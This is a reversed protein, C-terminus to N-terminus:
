ARERSIALAACVFVAIFVIQIGIGQLVETRVAGSVADFEGLLENVKEYWYLPLFQAATRVGKNLYDMPVFAGCVFCMGLTVINVLGSLANSDKVCMAIFYALSLAVATLVFSNVVCYIFGGSGTFKQGYVLVAAATVILWLCLALVGSALLGQMNQRRMPMASAKMRSPLKGRRFGILIYGMVYCLVNMVLFPMYRYYYTHDKLKGANGSFDVLTVDGEKKEQIRQATEAASFGAAAYTRVYNLFSNVQQDVYYGSYSGPVKTIELKDEGKICNKEFEKPIRLIYGVNRYFLNEQLVEKDNELELITNTQGLYEKFSEALIGGDEDVIGIPVDEAEYIGSGQTDEATKQFLVTVTFFITFYLVMVWINKRAAKMYAKFVTM